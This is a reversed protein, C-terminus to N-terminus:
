MEHSVARDKMWAILLPLVEREADSGRLVDVHNFDHSFGSNMGVEVFKKDASGLRELLYRGRRVSAHFRDAAGVGAWVPLTVSGLCQWYDIEGQISAFQCKPAWKAFQKMLNVPEDSVGLRLLRAPFYGFLGGLFVASHFMIRKRLGLESYNNVASALLCVGSVKAHLKSVLGLSVLLAYGAFSHALVFIPGDHRESVANLLAPIDQQVYEDFSWNWKRATSPWKSRGHGRLEGVYVQYGHDLLVSAPGHQKSNLFFRGDSFLGHLCLVAAHPRQGSSNGLTRLSLQHGDPTAIWNFSDSYKLPATDNM